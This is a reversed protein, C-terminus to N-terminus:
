YYTHNPHIGCLIKYHNGVTILTSIATTNTWLDKSLIIHTLHETIAWFPGGLSSVALGIDDEFNSVKSLLPFFLVAGIKYDFM